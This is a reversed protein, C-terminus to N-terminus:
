SSGMNSFPVVKFNKARENIAMTYHYTKFYPEFMSYYSAM